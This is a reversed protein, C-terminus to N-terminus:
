KVIYGCGLWVDTGPVRKVYGRKVVPEKVNTRKWWYEVWGEGPNKAVEVMEQVLYKGKADKLNWASKGVLERRAPHSLTVGKMDAAYVYLTKKRFPGASANLLKITYDLGKENIKAMAKNVLEVVAMENEANEQAATMQGKEGAAFAFSVALLMCLIAFGVIRSVRM